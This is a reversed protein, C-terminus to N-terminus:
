AYTKLKVKKARVPYRILTKLKEPKTRRPDGMYIEHHKGNIQLGHNKAYDTLSKITRVEDAYAGIHTAQISFGEYFSELRVLHYHADPHKALAQGRARDVLYDNIYDPVMIMLRWRWTARNKLNTGGPQWWLGELPPVKFEHYNKPRPLKSFKLGMKLSYILGYLSQVAQQFDASGPSGRGGITLFRMAPVQLEDIKNASGLYLGNIFVQFDEASKISAYSKM